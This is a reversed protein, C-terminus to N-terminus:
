TFQLSGDPIYRFGTGFSEMDVHEGVVRFIPGTCPFRLLSYALHHLLLLQFGDLPYDLLVLVIINGCPNDEAIVLFHVLREAMHEVTIAPLPGFM